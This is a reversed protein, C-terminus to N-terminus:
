AIMSPGSFLISSILLPDTSNWRSVVTNVGTQNLHKYMCVPILYSELVLQIHSTVVPPIHYGTVKNSNLPM